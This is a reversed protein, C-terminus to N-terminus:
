HGAGRKLMPMGLKARDAEGAPADTRRAVRLRASRSRPNEKLEDEDPGAAKRTILEWRPADEPTPPAHRSGQGQRGSRIQFFRKVM